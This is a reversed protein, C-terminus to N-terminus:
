RTTADVKYLERLAGAAGNPGADYWAYKSSFVDGTYIAFGLGSADDVRYTNVGLWHYRDKKKLFLPGGSNGHNIAADTQIITASGNRRFASIKGFTVTGPLGKPSGVAVVDDGVECSQEKFELTIYDRGEALGTGDVELCALDKDGVQDAFRLVQRQQGSPFTVVMQFRVIEPKGDYPSKALDVLSLCHSNTILRLRNNSASIVGVSGQWSSVDNPTFKHYSEWVGEVTAASLQLETKSIGTSGCAITFVAIGFLVLVTLLMSLVAGLTRPVKLALLHPYSPNFNM